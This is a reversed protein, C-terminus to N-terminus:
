CRSERLLEHLGGRGKVAPTDRYFEERLEDAMIRVIENMREALLTLLQEHSIPAQAVKAVAVAGPNAAVVIAAVGGFLAARRSLMPVRQDGSVGNPSEDTTTTENM